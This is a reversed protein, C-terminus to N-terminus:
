LCYQDLQAGTAAGQDYVSKCFPHAECITQSYCGPARQLSAGTAQYLSAIDAVTDMSINGGTNLIAGIAGDIAQIQPLENLKRFFYHQVLEHAAANDKTTELRRSLEVLATDGLLSIDIYRNIIEAVPIGYLRPFAAPRFAICLVHHTDPCQVQSQQLFPGRLFHHPYPEFESADGSRVSVAKESLTFFLNIQATWPYDFTSSVPLASFSDVKMIVISDILQHLLPHVPLSEWPQM